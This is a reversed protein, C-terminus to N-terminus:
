PYRIQACLSPPAGQRRSSRQPCRRARTLDRMAEEASKPVSVATIDGSRALRARPVADRRDTTVSDGPKQPMLSPAVVGCDSGKHRLYQSLWSGCPGAESVFLLHTAKSPMKRILPDLDCPRTRLTGLDM